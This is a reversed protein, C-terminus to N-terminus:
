FLPDHRINMARTGTAMLRFKTTQVMSPSGVIQVDRDAWAGYGAVIKGIQGTVRPELGPWTRESEGSDYYWWPNEARETVPTVTLWKNAVALRSLTELDYLDCPHHGGVFLHVKPNIRRQSMAMLQARLPAIGTGCGIMLMKRKVNRPIGLGGLPSGLLWQDGVATNGVMAPSVWGGLVSRIHFEIEGNANAPVAPSMYRWMRPRSPIQVSLYQGAAYQMPQDLQLRIVALNRLVERREVVTGTWVPPTSEQEAAGIMTDSILALGETWAREVEDTWMESGAFRRMATKLSESVATYHARQVGYKRHDRGLQALFPLLKEPEELRDLAYGIAKVLRDRQADMAAPFYDRVGPYETFLIAYFSKSLREAGGEEAAVAKFTTRILAVTRSDM